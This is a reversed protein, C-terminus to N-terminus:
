QIKVDAKRAQDQLDALKQKADDIAKRKDAMEAQYQREQEAWKKPDRLSNGADAYYVAARLKYERESVTYERELQAIANKLADAKGQFGAAAKSKDEAAPKAATKGEKDDAPGSKEAAAAPEASPLEVPPIDDNTVVKAASPRKAQRQQRALDGLSQAGAFTVILLSLTAACFYFIRKMLIM